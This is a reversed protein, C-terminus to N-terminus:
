KYSKNFKKNNNKNKSKTNNITLIKERENNDEVLDDIVNISIM